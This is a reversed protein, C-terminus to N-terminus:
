KKVIKMKMIINDLPRDNRDTEVSAISDVVNLGEVVEGFVTYEGDLFPAGGINTYDARQKDSFKFLKVVPNVEVLHDVLSDCYHNFAAFNRARQLKTLAEQDAKSADSKLWDNLLKQKVSANHQEEIHDLDKNSYVKGQVIYFQCGSSKKEPNNDRAAALAGRKHYKGDVFEAPIREGHSGAGLMAGKKANKSEPDGGQIMFDEIVRHFLLSDYFHEKVLAVFNEKHLPTEGYLKVKMNGYQTEILVFAPKPKKRNGKASM